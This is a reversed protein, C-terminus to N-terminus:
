RMAFTLSVSHLDSAASRCTVLPANPYYIALGHYRSPSSAKNPIRKDAVYSQGNDMKVVDFPGIAVYM